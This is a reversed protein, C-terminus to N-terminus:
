LQGQPFKEPTQDMQWNSRYLKVITSSRKTVLQEAEDLVTFTRTSSLFKLAFSRSNLSFPSLFCNDRNVREILHFM